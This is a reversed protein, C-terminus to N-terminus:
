PLRSAVASACVLVKAGASRSRSEEDDGHVQFLDLHGLGAGKLSRLLNDTCTRSNGIVM